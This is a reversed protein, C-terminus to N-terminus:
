PWFRFARKRQLQEIKWDSFGKWLVLHVIEESNERGLLIGERGDSMLERITQDDAFGRGTEYNDMISGTVQRMYLGSYNNLDLSGIDTYTGDDLYRFAVLRRMHKKGKNEIIVANNPKEKKGWKGKELKLATIVTNYRTSGRLGRVMWISEADPEGGYVEKYMTPPLDSHFDNKTFYAALARKHKSDRLLEKAEPNACLNDLTRYEVEDVLYAESLFGKKGDGEFEVWGEVPHDIVKVKAGYPIMVKTTANESPQSRVFLNSAIVYKFESSGLRPLILFVFAAALAGLLGVGGLGLWLGKRSRKAPREAPLQTKRTDTPTLTAAHRIAELRAQEAADGAQVQAPADAPPTVAIAKAAAVQQDAAQLADFFEQCDQYREAPNKATAKYIIAEIGPTVGPYFDTPSPLPHNVIQDYVIFETSEASYPCRGTAMHFLTVGLSYIDSRQDVAEGRVQEPSMYLVTGMSTGTKTLRHDEELLKAIGFDLMKIKGEPTLLFNSPKVDRHVVKKSHAYVFGQLIQGFLDKLRAEPIPGTKHLILEDLPDGEVYELVLYAGADDEIYDLLTVIHPHQLHALTAAENKFRARIGANRLLQPHLAKIAVKRGLLVHEALWVQGMGGEGIFKVLRYNQIITGAQM